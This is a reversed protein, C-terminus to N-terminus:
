ACTWSFCYRNNSPCDPLREANTEFKGFFGKEAASLHFHCAAIGMDIRQIDYPFANSYGPLKYEYFHFRDGDKVIRWPQKNSASPALRVMELVTEYPGAAAASLPTQYNGDFFLETWPKRTDGKAAFRVVRDTLSRREGAFGFPSIAPFIEDNGIKMAEAFGSRNFTGGLWCTGLGLSSIYLVLTEFEYGLGELSLDGDHVAAGFFNKAGQIFGYTGLKSPQLAADSELLRFTVKGGFPNELTKIFYAIKEKIDNDPLVASYTRVSIRTKIIEDVPIGFRKSM